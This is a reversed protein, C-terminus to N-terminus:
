HFELYDMLVCSSVTNDKWSYVYGDINLVPTVYFDMNRMMEEMKTDTKYTQLIKLLKITRKEYTKGYDVITMVDPHDKEM